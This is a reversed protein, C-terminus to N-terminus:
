FGHYDEKEHSVMILLSIDVCSEPGNCLRAALPLASPLLGKGPHPTDGSKVKKPHAPFLSKAVAQCLVKFSDM